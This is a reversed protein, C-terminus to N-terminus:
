FLVTGSQVNSMTAPLSYGNSLVLAAAQVHIKTGTPLGSMPITLSKYGAAPVTPIALLFLSTFNNGIAFDAIGPLPSPLLEPSAEVFLIDGVGGGVTLMLGIGQFLFGPDSFLMDVTPVANAAVDITASTTGGPTTLDIAVPGLKSVLPMLFTLTSDDVVTFQAPFTLLSIGDVVVSSTGTFGSGSLTVTAPGDVVVAEISSPSVSSVVPGGGSGGGSVDLPFANSLGDHTTSDKRVEIDGPGANSPISCTIEVGNSTLNVVKVPLGTGGPNLQTFWVQNNSPSFGSGRVTLTSGVISTSDIHPKAASKAGYIAQVAAIDDPEISRQAVGSGSISPYMTAALVTTHGIGIAHGYEHCAVGQLDIGTIYTGPGDAWSWTQYYRIRWGDSIPTETYALVGGSSGSIESHTNSNTTGVEIGEAQYSTDFNAGGSGLDFPQHPDGDGDGHLESGWEVSAKWIAMVAGFAGPFNTDAVQNNNATLATFNNYIRFDRQYQSLSGGILTYSESNTPLLFAGALCAAAAPLM